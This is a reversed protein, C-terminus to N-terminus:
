TERKDHLLKQSVGTFVFHADLKEREENQHQRHGCKNIGRPSVNMLVVTLEVDENRPRNPDVHCYEPGDRKDEHIDIDCLRRLEEVFIFNLFYTEQIDGEGPYKRPSEGQNEGAVIARSPPSCFSM